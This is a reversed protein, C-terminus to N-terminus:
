KRKGNKKLENFEVADRLARFVVVASFQNENFGYIKKLEEILRLSDKSLYMLKIKRKKM